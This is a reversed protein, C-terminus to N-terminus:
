IGDYDKFMEVFLSHDTPLVLKTGDSFTTHFEALFLGSRATDSANWRYEVLGTTSGTITAAGSFIPTYQNDNTALKFYINSGNTLDVATGDGDLFEVRLFPQTADQKIEFKAM